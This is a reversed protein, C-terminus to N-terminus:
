RNRPQGQRIKQLEEQLEKAKKKELELRKVTAKYSVMDARYKEDLDKRIFEREQMLRLKVDESAKQTVQFIANQLQRNYIYLYLSVVLLIISMILPVFFGIKRM